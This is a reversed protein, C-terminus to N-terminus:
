FRIITKEFLKRKKLDIKMHAFFFFFFLTSFNIQSSYVLFIIKRPFELHAFHTSGFLPPFNWSFNFGVLFIISIKQILNAPFSERLQGWFIYFFIKIFFLFFSSFWFPHSFHWLIIKEVSFKTQILNLFNGFTLKSQFITFNLFNIQSFIDNIKNQSFVCLVCLFSSFNPLLLTHFIRKYKVCM